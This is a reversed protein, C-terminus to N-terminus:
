YERHYNISKITAMLEDAIDPTIKNWMDVKGALTNVIKEAVEGQPFRSWTDAFLPLAEPAFRIITELCSDYGKLAEKKTGMM